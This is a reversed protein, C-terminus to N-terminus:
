ASIGEETPFVVYKLCEFKVDFSVEIYLKGFYLFKIPLYM